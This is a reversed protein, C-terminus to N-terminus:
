SAMSNYRDWSVMQTPFWNLVDVHILAYNGEFFKELEPHWENFILLHSPHLKALKYPFKEIAVFADRLYNRSFVWRHNYEFQLVSINEGALLELAGRIIEMDHGETDSKLLHVKQIKHIKCYETTTSRVIQIQKEGARLPDAYLSDIGTSSDSVFM